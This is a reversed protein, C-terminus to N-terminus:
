YFHIFYKWQEELYFNIGKRWNARQILTIPKILDNVKIYNFPILQVSAAELDLHAALTKLNFGNELNLRNWHITVTWNNSMENVHNARSFLQKRESLIRHICISLTGNEAAWKPVRLCFNMKERKQHETNNQGITEPPKTRESLKFHPKGTQWGRSPHHEHRGFCCALYNQGHGLGWPTGFHGVLSVFQETSITAMWRSIYVVSGM